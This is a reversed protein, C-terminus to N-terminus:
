FLFARLSNTRRVTSIFPVIRGNEGTVFKIAANIFIGPKLQNKEKVIDIDVRVQKTTEKILLAV